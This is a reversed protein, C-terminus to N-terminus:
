PNVPMLKGILAVTTKKDKDTMAALISSRSANDLVGLIRLAKSQSTAAMQLLLDAAKEPAMASFTRNLETTDLTSAEAGAGIELEDIRSQLAAIERDNVKDSDKLKITVEAAVRPTMRELVKGRQDTTMAGLVLAAEEVTMSELIPGAKSPSMKAYMDALSSIKTAYEETSVTKEASEKKLLDLEAQMSEIKKADEQAQDTAQKLANDRDTLLANLEAIKAKANNVTLEEDSAPAATESPVAPDPVISKVVPIKNGIELAADRWEKNFMLLLVGLLVATFLVPTIFFLFREFGSYSEKEVDASAM